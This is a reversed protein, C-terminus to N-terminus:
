SDNEHSIFYTHPLGDADLEPECPEYYDREGKAGPLRTCIGLSCSCGGEPFSVWRGKQHARGGPPIWFFCYREPCVNPPPRENPNWRM